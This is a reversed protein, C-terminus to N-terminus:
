ILRRLNVTTFFIDNGRKVMLNIPKGEGKQFIKYIESITVDKSSKNNIFIVRDGQQLGALEAPSNEIIRDVMFEHYDEGRAMLEIGSMNHEFPEKMRRNIPKLVIYQDRYNFTVKFRRLFECGINGQRETLDVGRIRYSASDPFSAVLNKIEFKGIKLMPIRGLNGNIIGSLGRGLQAKVIKEPMPISNKQNADLSIAHGAGTDLIVKLPLNQTDNILEITSLYPKNEEITIPFREGKSPKYKYHEPNELILENTSFDITVAFRNFIEYGIIGHVPRGVFESLKLVDDKIVVLNQRYGIMEGMTITNDLVIGAEISNGEGVGAISVNRTYKMRQQQVINADTLIISSVGTDLIFRLTDSNNVKVPVIVLNAQFEFPIRTIKRKKILQFGFKEDSVAKLKVKEQTSNQKKTSNIQKESDLRQKTELNPSWKNPLIDQVKCYGVVPLMTIAM